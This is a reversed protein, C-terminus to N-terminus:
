VDKIKFIHVIPYKELDTLSISAAGFQIVYLLSNTRDFAVGEIRGHCTDFFYKELGGGPSHSGWRIYPEVFWPRTKGNAVKLVDDVDYFLM